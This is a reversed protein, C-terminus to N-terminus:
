RMAAALEAALISSPETLIEFRAGKKARLSLFEDGGFNLMGIRSLTMIDHAAFFASMDEVLDRKGAPVRLWASTDASSLDAAVAREAKSFVLSSWRFM